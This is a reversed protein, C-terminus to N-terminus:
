NDEASLVVIITANVAVLVVVVIGDTAAVIADPERLL